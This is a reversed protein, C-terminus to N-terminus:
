LYSTGQAFWITNLQLFIDYTLRQQSYILSNAGHTVNASNKPPNLINKSNKMEWIRHCNMGYDWDLMGSQVTSYKHAIASHYQIIGWILDTTKSQDRSCMSTHGEERVVWVETMTWSEGRVYTYDKSNDKSCGVSNLRGLATPTVVSKYIIM